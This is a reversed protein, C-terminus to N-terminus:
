SSDISFSISFDLHSILPYNVILLLFVTLALDDVVRVRTKKKYPTDCRLMTVYM